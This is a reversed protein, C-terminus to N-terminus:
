PYGSSRNLNQLGMKRVEKAVYSFKPVFATEISFDATLWFIHSIRVSKPNLTVSSKWKNARIKTTEDIETDLLFVTKSQYPLNKVFELSEPYSCYKNEMLNKLYSVHVANRFTVLNKFITIAEESAVGSFQAAYASRLAWNFKTMSNVYNETQVTLYRFCLYTRKRYQAENYEIRMKQILFLLFLSLITTLSAGILSISGRNNQIKSYIKHTSKM